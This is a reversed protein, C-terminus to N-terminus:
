SMVIHSAVLSSYDDETLACHMTIIGILLTTEEESWNKKATRTANIFKYYIKEFCNQLRTDDPYEEIKFTITKRIEEFIAIKQEIPVPTKLYSYFKEKIMPGIVAPDGDETTWTEAGQSMFDSEVKMQSM